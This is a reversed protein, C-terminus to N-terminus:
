EDAGVVRLGRRRARAADEEKRTSIVKLKEEAYPTAREILGTFYFETTDNGGGARTRPKRTIVKAKVMARLRRQVTRASVGVRAALAKKGPYPAKDPYWWHKAIQLLINLDVADLGLQQQHELLTNPVATWGAAMLPKGWKKENIRETESASVKAAKNSKSM